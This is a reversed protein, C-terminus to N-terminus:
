PGPRAPSGPVIDASTIRDSLKKAFDGPSHVGGWHDCSIYGSGGAIGRAHVWAPAWRTLGFENKWWRILLLLNSIVMAAWRASALSLDNRPPQVGAEPSSSRGACTMPRAAQIMRTRTLSATAM